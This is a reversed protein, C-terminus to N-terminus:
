KVLVKKGGVIYIGPASINEVKRGTLDYIAKVNGSEGKVECIGTTGEGFRFSYSAVESAGPVVFYAKNANNKFHTTGAEGAENKNLVAKYLGIGDKNGLVYAPGAIYTDITTGELLNSEVATASAAYNFQYTAATAAGGEAGTIIVGTHAPIADVKEMIAHTSNTANVIYAEVGEPITVACGLYLTAYGAEGIKLDFSATTPDEVEVIRWASGDNIANENWAVVQSEHDQAHLMMGDEHVIKVINEAGMNAISVKVAGETTTAVAQLQGSSPKNSMYTGRAVNYLYFNNGGAPIFQFLQGISGKALNLGGEDTRAFHMAGTSNVYIQQDVRHDKSCSSVINYFSGEKPLVISLSKVANNIADIQAQCEEDTSLANALVAMAAVINENKLANCFRLYRAKEDLSLEGSIINLDIYEKDVANSTVNYQAKEVFQFVKEEEQDLVFYKLQLM